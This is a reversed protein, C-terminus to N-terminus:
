QNDYSSTRKQALPVPRRGEPGPLPQKLPQQWHLPMRHPKM